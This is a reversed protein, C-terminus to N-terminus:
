VWNKKKFIFYLHSQQRESLHISIRIHRAHLLIKGSRQILQHTPCTAPLLFIIEAIRIKRCDSTVWVSYVGHGILSFTGCRVINDLLHDVAHRIANSVPDVRRFLHISNSLTYNNLIFRYFLRVYTYRQVTFFIVKTVHEENCLCRLLGAIIKNWYYIVM